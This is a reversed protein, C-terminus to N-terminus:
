RVRDDLASSSARWPAAVRPAGRQRREAHGVALPPLEAGLVGLWSHNVDLALATAVWSANRLWLDPLDAALLLLEAGLM